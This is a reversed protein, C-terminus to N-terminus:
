PLECSKRLLTGIFLNCAVGKELMVQFVKVYSPQSEHPGAVLLDVSSSIVRKALEPTIEQTRVPDAGPALSVSGLLKFNLRRNVLEPGM